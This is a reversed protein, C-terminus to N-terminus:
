NEVIMLFVFSYGAFRCTKSLTELATKSLTELATKL